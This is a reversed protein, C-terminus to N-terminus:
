QWERAENRNPPYDGLVKPNVHKKRSHARLKFELTGSQRLQAAQHLVEAETGLMSHIWSVLISGVWIQRRVQIDLLWYSDSNKKVRWFYGEPLTPMGTNPDIDVMVGYWDYTNSAM